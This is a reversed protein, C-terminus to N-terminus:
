DITLFFECGVDNNGLTKHLLSVSVHVHFNTSLVNNNQKPFFSAVCNWKQYYMFGFWVNINSEWKGKMQLTVSWCQKENPFLKLKLLYPTFKFTNVMSFFPTNSAETTANSLDRKLSNVCLNESLDTCAGDDSLGLVVWRVRNRDNSILLQKCIVAYHQAAVCKECWVGLQFLQITCRGRYKLPRYSDSSWM